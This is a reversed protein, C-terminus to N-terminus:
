GARAVPCRPGAGLDPLAPTAGIITVRVIYQLVSPSDVVNWADSPRIM